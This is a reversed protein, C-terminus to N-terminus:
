LTIMTNNTGYAAVYNVSEAIKHVLRIGINKTPDTGSEELLQIRKKIDFPKGNDRFRITIKQKEDKDPSNKIFLRVSLQQWENTFGYSIVNVALEETCLAALYARRSDIGKKICFGSNVM